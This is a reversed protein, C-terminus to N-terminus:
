AIPPVSRARALPDRAIRGPGDVADAPVIVQAVTMHRALVPDTAILAAIPAPNALGSTELVVQDPGPGASRRDCLARPGQTLRDLVTCCACGGALVTMGAAGALALDDVLEAAAENV